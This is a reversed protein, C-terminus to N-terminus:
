SDLIERVKRILENLQYPKGIFGYAGSDLVKGAQGNASYGSSILIRVLPDQELMLQMCQSGGMGPMNLDMIVLDIDKGHQEYIHLAREGSDASLVDYGWSELIEKTLERIEEEDDVILITESGKVPEHEMDQVKEVAESGSIAPWYITFITGQGPESYCTINGEHAKVVGYVSALGLGTGQGVEKTTFFPEYIKQMTKKDMGTGTDSVSLAVYDGPNLGLYRDKGVQVKKTEILMKGGDSMADAANSGLNLIVQEVQVPDADILPNDNGLKLEINVMRPITRELMAAAESVERNLSLKKRHTEAKRSFVLLKSVLQGAREISKNISKIRMNDPHDEPKDRAILHINGSIAHLLNNFDHAIGGALMGVSEMKQAHILQGQMKKQAEQANKRETINTHTGVMRLARGNEDRGFAKGRGNIWVWNGDRALMRFEVSFSDCRNEICDMNVKFATEKDEPHILDLWSNLHNPVETSKYGLMQAYGPSYYVENTTIDWDWLGDQTVEMARAFRKESSSVKVILQKQKELVSELKLNAYGISSIVEALHAYFNMATEITERSWLKVKSLADLYENEDFGYQRAQDQFVQIDPPEDEFFFQGSFLNGVHTKGVMVPMAVDVMNNKCRYVRLSGPKINRTLARDSEICNKATDPHARHFKTCIDQWGVSAIVNGKLDLLAGGINTLKYFDDMLRQIDNQKILRALEIRNKQQPDSENSTQCSLHNKVM